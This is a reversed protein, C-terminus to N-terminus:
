AGLITHIGTREKWVMGNILVVCCSFTAQDFLNRPVLLLSAFLTIGQVLKHWHRTLLSALHPKINVSFLKLFKQLNRNTQNCKNNHQRQRTEQGAM